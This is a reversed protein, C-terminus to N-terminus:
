EVKLQGIMGLSKHDDVDCWVNFIGSKDATFSIIKSNGASITNVRIDYGEIFFNHIGESNFIVIKLNDGKNVTINNPTLKFNSEIITFEKITISSNESNKDINKDICSSISMLILILIIIKM